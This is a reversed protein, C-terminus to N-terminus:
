LRGGCFGLWRNGPPRPSVRASAASSAAHKIKSAKKTTQPSEHLVLAPSPQSSVQKRSPKAFPVGSLLLHLHRLHLVGTGCFGPWFSSSCAAVHTLVPQRKNTVHKTKAPLKVSVHGLIRAGTFTLYLAGLDNRPEQLALEWM